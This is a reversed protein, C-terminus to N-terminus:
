DKKFYKGIWGAASVPMTSAWQPTAAMIELFAKLDTTGEPQENVMEDHVHFITNYGNAEANLLSNAMLDRAIAQVVNETLKGGYTDLQTWKASENSGEDSKRGWYLIKDSWREFRDDYRMEVTPQYYQLKRGSPLEVCLYPGMMYFFVLGNVDYWNGPNTIALKATEEMKYWLAKINPNAARWRDKTQNMEPKTMGLKDAGFNIMAGEGGQFGFALEMVKGIKRMKTVVEMYPVGFAESYSKIYIDPKFEKGDILPWDGAKILGANLQQYYLERSEPWTDPTYRFFDLRWQEGALWAIVRAEIASFDADVLDNGPAACILPRICWSIANMAKWGYM